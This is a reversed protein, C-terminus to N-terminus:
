ELSIFRIEPEPEYKISYLENKNVNEIHISSHDIEYVNILNLNWDFKHIFTGLSSSANRFFKGSYLAYIYDSDSTVSIYARLDNNGGTLNGQVIKTEPVGSQLDKISKIPSGDFKILSGRTAYRYFLVIKEESENYAAYSHWRSAVSIPNVSSSNPLNLDPHEGICNIRDGSMDFIEFQCQLTVGSAFFKNENNFLKTYAGQSKFQIIDNSLLEFSKNYPILRRIGSDYIYFMIENNGDVINWPNQYEGPGRGEKGIDHLHTLSDKEQIQFVKVSPQNSADTLILVEDIIKLSNPQFLTTGIEVPTSNIKQIQNTWSYVEKQQSYTSKNYFFILIIFVISFLIKSNSYFM